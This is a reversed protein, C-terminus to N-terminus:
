KCFFNSDPSSKSVATANHQRSILLINRSIGAVASSLFALKSHKSRSTPKVLNKGFTLEVSVKIYTRKLNNNYGCIVYLTHPSLM